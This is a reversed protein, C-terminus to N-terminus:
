SEEAGAGAIQETAASMRAVPRGRDHRRGAHEAGMSGDDGDGDDGDGDDGDGDDAIAQDHSRDLPEDLTQFHRPAGYSETAAGAPAAAANGTPTGAAAGTRSGAAAGTPTGGAAGTAASRGKAAQRARPREALTPHRLRIVEDVLRVREQMSLSAITIYPMAYMELLLKVMGDIIVVDEWKLAARVGDAVVLDMHPRVFFILGGAVWRMYEDLAPDRFIEHMITGHNATYALNCFARDSVFADGAEREAMIQRRFVEIQYRNVAEVNSRLRDLGIELEALISRAVESILKLGYRDRVYRALTTKGTGHAGVFYIRRQPEHPAPAASM